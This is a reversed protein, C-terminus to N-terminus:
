KVVEVDPRLKAFAAIGADTFTVRPKWNTVVQMKVFLKKLTPISALELLAADTLETQFIQLSELKPFSKLTPLCADTIRTQGLDLTLLQPMGAIQALGEDNV